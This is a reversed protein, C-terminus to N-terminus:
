FGFGFRFGGHRHRWGHGWDDWDRHRWRYPYGGYDYGYGYYPYPAYDYYPQCYYGYYPYCYSRPYCRRDHAYASGATGLVLVLVLSALIWKLTKM